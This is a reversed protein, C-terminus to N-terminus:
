QPLRIAVWRYQSSSGYNASDTCYTLSIKFGSATQSILYSSFTIKSVNYNIGSSFVMYNDDTFAVPLTIDYSSAGTTTITGMAIELGSLYKVINADKYVIRDGYGQSGTLVNTIIDSSNFSIYRWTTWTDTATNINFSRYRVYVADYKIFLQSMGFRQIGGYIVGTIKPYVILTGKSNEVDYPTNLSGVECNYVGVQEAVADCDYVALPYLQMKGELAETIVKNQVGNTSTTSLSDDMDGADGTEGKEGKDGKEGKLNSFKFRKYPKGTTASLSEVIEVSPMGVNNVESTDPVDALHEAFDQAYLGSNIIANLEEIAVRSDSSLEQGKNLLSSDVKDRSWEAM